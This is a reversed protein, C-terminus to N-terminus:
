FQADSALLFIDSFFLATKEGAYIAGKMVAHLMSTFLVAGHPSSLELTVLIQHFNEFRQPHWLAAMNRKM